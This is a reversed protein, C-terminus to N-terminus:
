TETEFDYDLFDPLRETKTEDWDWDIEDQDPMEVTLTENWLYFNEMTYLMRMGNVCYKTKTDNLSEDFEHIKLSKVLVLLRLHLMWAQLLRTM